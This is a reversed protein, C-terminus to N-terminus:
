KKRSNITRERNNRKAIKENIFGGKEVFVVWVMEPQINLQIYLAYFVFLSLSINRENLNEGSRGM